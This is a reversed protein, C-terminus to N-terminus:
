SASTDRFLALERGISQGKRLGMGVLQKVGGLAPRQPDDGDRRISAGLRNHL